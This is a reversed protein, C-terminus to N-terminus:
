GKSFLARFRGIRVNDFYILLITSIVITSCGVTMKQRTRLLEKFEAWHYFNNKKEVEFIYSLNTSSNFLIGLEAKFLSKSM